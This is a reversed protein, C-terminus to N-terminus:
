LHNKDKSRSGKTRSKNKREEDEDEDETERLCVWNTKSRIMSIIYNSLIFQAHTDENNIPIDIICLLTNGAHSVMESLSLM